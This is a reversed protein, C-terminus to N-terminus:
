AGGAAGAAAAAVAAEGVAGGAAALCPKAATATDAAALWTCSPGLLLLVAPPVKLYKCQTLRASRIPACCLCLATRPSPFLSLVLEAPQQTQM